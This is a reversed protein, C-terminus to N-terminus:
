RARGASDLTVVEKRDAADRARLVLETMNYADAKTMRCPTGDTISHAFDVFLNENPGPDIQYTAKKETTLAIHNWAGQTEIVGEGGAIRLRDDGHTAYAAPLLYDLRATGTAGSQYRVLVSATDESEGFEPSAVNAHFAAVQGVVLNPVWQMLDLAHIGVFPITGGLRARSKQWDDRKELRYSKQATVMGVKGVAGEEILKRMTRYKGYYRMTLLMTLKVGASDVAAKVRTLDELTTTLPKESCIHVKRKALAILQEARLGNEDAVVCVDMDTHEVLHEWNTYQEAKAALKAKKCFDAVKEKESDSVAVVECNKLIAAGSLCDGVHGRLGLIGIRM